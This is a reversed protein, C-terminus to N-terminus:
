ARLRGTEEEFLKWFMNKTKEYEIGYSLTIGYFILGLISSVFVWLLWQVYDMFGLVTSGLGLVIVLFWFFESAYFLATTIMRMSWIFNMYKSIKRKLVWENFDLNAKLNKTKKLVTIKATARLRNRIRGQMIKHNITRFYGSFLYFFIGVVLSALILKILGNPFDTNLYKLNTFPVFRQFNPQLSFIDYPLSLLFFLGSSLIFSLFGFPFREVITKTTEM